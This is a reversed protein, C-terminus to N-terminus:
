KGAQITTENVTPKNFRGAEMIPLGLQGAPVYIVQNSTNKIEDIWLWSLYAPNNELSEGIIRNSAAIGHARITDAQALLSSSEMKAKAEAVAVERSSQAEALKSEGDKRASYVRYKPCGWMGLTIIGLLVFIVFSAVTIGSKVEPDM